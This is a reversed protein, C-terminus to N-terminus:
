ESGFEKSPVAFAPTEASGVPQLTLALSTGKAKGEPDSTSAFVEPDPYAMTEMGELFIGCPSSFNEGTAFLVRYSGDPFGRGEASDEARVFMALATQENAGRLKVLIDRPTANRILLRNDGGEPAKILAGSTPREGRNDECWKRRARWGPGDGLQAARVFGVTGDPAIVRLWGAGGPATELAQVTDFRALQALAPHDKGPGKRLAVATEAVHRLADMTVPLAKGTPKRPPPAPPAPRAVAAVTSRGQEILVPALLTLWFVGAFAALIPALQLVFARSFVSWRNKLKRPHRNGLSALLIAVQQDSAADHVFAQAQDTVARAVDFDGARLFAHAQQVLLKVNAEKPLFGGLLNRTLAAIAFLPGLPFAWWGRTWTVWSSKLAQKQACPNCFVGHIPTRVTRILFGRVQEFVVYRPQATIKGCASCAIFEAPFAFRRPVESHDDEYPSPPPEYDPEHRPKPKAKPTDYAARKDADGLM